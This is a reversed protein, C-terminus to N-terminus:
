GKDWKNFPDWDVVRGNRILVNDGTYVYNIPGSRLLRKPVYFWRSFHGNVQVNTTFYKLNNHYNVVTHWSGVEPKYAEKRSDFEKFRLVHRYRGAVFVYFATRDRIGDVTTDGHIRRMFLTFKRLRARKHSLNVYPKGYLYTSM